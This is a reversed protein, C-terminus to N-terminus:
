PILAKLTRYGLILGNRDQVYNNVIDSEEQIEKMEIAKAFVDDEHEIVLNGKYDVELLATIFKDWKVEGWGPTRARWWGHGLDNM